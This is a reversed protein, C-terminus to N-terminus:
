ARSGSLTGALLTRAGALIATLPARRLHFGSGDYWCPYCRRGRQRRWGGDSRADLVRPLTAHGRGPRGDDAQPGAPTGRFAQRGRPGRRIRAPLLRPLDSPPCASLADLHAREVFDLTGGRAYAHM